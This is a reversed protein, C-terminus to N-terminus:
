YQGKPIIKNNKNKHIIWLNKNKYITLNIKYIKNYM